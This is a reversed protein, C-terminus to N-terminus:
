QGQLSIPRDLGGLSVPEASVPGARINSPCVWGVQYGLEPWLAESARCQPEFTLGVVELEADSARCQPEFALGGLGWNLGHSM